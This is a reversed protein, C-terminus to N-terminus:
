EPLADTITKVSVGFIGDLRSLLPEYLPHDGPLFQYFPISLRGESWGAFIIVSEGLQYGSGCSNLSRYSVQGLLNNTSKFTRLIVFTYEYDEVAIVRVQHIEDARDFKESFDYYLDESSPAQGIFSCAFTASPAFLVLLLFGLIGSYWKQKLKM